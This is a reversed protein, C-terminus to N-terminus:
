PQWWAHVALVVPCWILWIAILIAYGYRFRKGFWETLPEAVLAMFLPFVLMIEMNPSRGDGEMGGDCDHGFEPESLLVSRDRRVSPAERLLSLRLKTVKAIAQLRLKAGPM